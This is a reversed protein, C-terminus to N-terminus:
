MTASVSRPQAPPRMGVSVRVFQLPKMCWHCEQVAAGVQGLSSCQLGEHWGPDDEALSPAQPCLELGLPIVFLHARSPTPEQGTTLTSDWSWSHVSAEWQHLGHRTRPLPSIGM